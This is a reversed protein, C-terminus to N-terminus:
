IGGRHAGVVGRPIGPSSRGAKQYEREVADLLTRQDIPRDHAAAHFAAALTANRILGGTLQYLDALQRLDVDPALPVQPPLHSVWLRLREEPGPEDFEVIVDLRRVFADDINGRLNTALLVLGDSADIRGLLHATDLNAWRGQADSGDTRRGFMADAEDFFLVAQSREAAAFVESINKETEGLWKSVLASLDVVLLDLDLTAAVIHASLTKGTGPPGAFLARVGRAARAGFGWEHLVRVQGRMRDIVSHLLQGNDPTTVLQDWTGSPRVLRASGPLDSGSRRRAHRVIGGVTLDAGGADSTARADAVARAARVQDVSLLSALREAAGNMEPVLGHWMDVAEGLERAGLDIVIVPRDDLPLGSSDAVCLVVPGPHAVLPAETPQGVVVPHARRAAALVSVQATREPTLDDAAVAAVEIGVVDAAGRVLAALEAPPRSSSGTIVVLRAPGHLAAAFREPDLVLSRIPHPTDLRADAPWHELGRLVSWLGPVLALGREPLPGPADTRIIGHIGLPGAELAARLHRRGRADLELVAALAVFSLRPEGRPHLQRALHALAEHEEPMGVLLVLDREFPALGFATCVRTLPESWAAPEERMSAAISAVTATIAPDASLRGFRETLDAFRAPGGVPPREHM